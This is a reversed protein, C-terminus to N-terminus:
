LSGDWEDLLERTPKGTVISDFKLRELRTVIAAVSLGGATIYDAYRAIREGSDKDVVVETMEPISAILPGLRGPEPPM